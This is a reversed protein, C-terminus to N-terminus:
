RREASVPRHDECEHEQQLAARWQTGPQVRQVAAIELPGGGM